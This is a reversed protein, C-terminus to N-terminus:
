FARRVGIVLGQVGVGLAIADYDSGQLQTDGVRRQSMPSWQYGLDLRLPGQTIGVGFGFTHEVIAATMPTLTETPM